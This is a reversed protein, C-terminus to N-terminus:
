GKEGEALTTSTGSSSGVAVALESFQDDDLDISLDLHAFSIDKGQPTVVSRDTLMRTWTRRRENLRQVGEEEAGFRARFGSGDILAITPADGRTIQALFEGHVELEPSQALGFLVVRCLDEDDDLQPAEAGYPLPDSIEIVARDGLLEALVTRLRDGGGSPLQTSYPVVSVRAFRSTTGSRLRRSLTSSIPVSLTRTRRRTVITSALFLLRPFIGFLLAATAWLHIWPQAAVAAKEPPLSLPQGLIAPIRFLVQNLQEADTQDLWTSEWTVQYETFLGRAYAEGIATILLLLATCHLFLQATSTIRSNAVTRWRNAFQSLIQNWRLAQDGTRLKAARVGFLLLWEGLRTASLPARQGTTNDARHEESLRASTRPSFLAFSLGAISALFNWAILFILPNAFLDIQNSDGLISQGLGYILAILTALGFWIAVSFERQLRRVKPESRAAISLLTDARRAIASAITAPTADDGLESRAVQTAEERAALPILDGATDIEEITTALVVARAEEVPLTQRETM